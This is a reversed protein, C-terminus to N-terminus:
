IITLFSGQNVFYSIDYTVSAWPDSFPTTPQHYKIGNNSVLISDNCVLRFWSYNPNYSYEQKLDFSVLHTGLSFSSDFCIELKSINNPKTLFAQNGSSPNSGM